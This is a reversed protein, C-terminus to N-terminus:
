LDCVHLVTIEVYSSFQVIVLQLDLTTTPLYAFGTTCALLGKLRLQAKFLELM